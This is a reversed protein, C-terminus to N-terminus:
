QLLFDQEEITLTLESDMMRYTINPNRMVRCQIGNTVMIGLWATESPEGATRWLWSEATGDKSIMLMNLAM